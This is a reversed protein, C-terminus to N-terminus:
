SKSRQYKVTVDLEKKKRERNNDDDDDNNNNNNNFSLCTDPLYIFLCVAALM